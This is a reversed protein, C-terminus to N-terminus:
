FALPIDAIFVQREPCLISLAYLHLKDAVDVGDVAGVDDLAVDAIDGVALARRLLEAAKGRAQELPLPPPPSKLTSLQSSSPVLTVTITGTADGAARGIPPFFASTTLIASAVFTRPDERSAIVTSM